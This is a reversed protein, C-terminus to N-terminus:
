IHTDSYRKALANVALLLGLNIINNFLGIAATYSFQAGALGTRYVYTSIVDSWEMNLDNQLLLIKEFGVTLLQGARLILQVIATPKLCQFYIHYIIKMRGAGDIQAAEVLGPDVTSLAAIYIVSAFGTNQWVSSWVYIHKFNPGISLFAVREGGMVAIINNFLGSGRDLFLVIMGCMAVTSIFHPLFVIMQVTKKYTSHSVENLLLALIIPLPWGVILAYISISFTNRVLQWFFPYTLFRLFHKTGVWESEWMGKRPSFDKFAIQLGGMPLYHFIVMYTFAPLLLLVLRWHRQRNPKQIGRLVPINM